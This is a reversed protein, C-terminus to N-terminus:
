GDYSFLNDARRARARKAAEDVTGNTDRPVHSVAARPCTVRGAPRGPRGSCSRHRPRRVQPCFRARPHACHINLLACRVSSQSPRRVSAAGPVPGHRHLPCPALVPVSAARLRAPFQVVGHRNLRVRVSSQSSRRATAAGFQFPDHRHLPYPYSPRLAHRHLPYPFPQAGRTNACHASSRPVAIASFTVLIPWPLHSPRTV